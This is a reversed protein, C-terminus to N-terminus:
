KIMKRSLKWGYKNFNDAEIYSDFLYVHSCIYSSLDMRRGSRGEVTLSCDPINYGHDYHTPGKKIVKGVLREGGSDPVFSSLKGIIDGLPDIDENEKSSEEQIKM